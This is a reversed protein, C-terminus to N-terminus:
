FIFQIALQTGGAAFDYIGSDDQFVYVDTQVSVSFSETIGYRVGIGGAVADDDEDAFGAVELKVSGIGLQGFLEWGSTGFPIIGVVHISTASVDLTDFSDSFSGLDVYRAEVALHKFFKYGAYVQVSTDQDDLAGVGAGDDDFNSLGAAGGFYIGKAKTEAANAAGCALILLVTLIIQRTM